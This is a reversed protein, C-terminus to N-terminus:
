GGIAGGASNQMAALDINLAAPSTVVIVRDDVLDLSPLANSETREFVGKLSYQWRVAARHDFAQIRLEPLSVAFDRRDVAHVANV